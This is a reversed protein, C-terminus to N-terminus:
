GFSCKSRESRTVWQPNQVMTARCTMSDPIGLSRRADMTPHDETRPLRLDLTAPGVLDSRCVAASGVRDFM